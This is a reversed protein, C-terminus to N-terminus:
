EIYPYRKEIEDIKDIWEQRTKKGREQQFFIPDAEERYASSRQQSQYNNYEEKTIKGADYQEIMSLQQFSNTSEDFKSKDPTPITGNDVLQKITTKKDLEYLTDIRKQRKIFDIDHVSEIIKINNGQVYAYKKKM